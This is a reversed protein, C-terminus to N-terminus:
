ENDTAVITINGNYCLCLRKTSVQVVCDCAYDVQASECRVINELTLLKKKLGNNYFFLNMKKEDKAFLSINEGDPLKIIKNKFIM